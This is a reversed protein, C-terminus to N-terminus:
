DHAPDLTLQARHFDYHQTPYRYLDARTMWDHFYPDWRPPYHMGRSLSATSERDLRRHLAALTRDMKAGMRQHNFYLSGAVSSVYNIVHFPRAAANLLRAFTRGVTRPLRAFVGLLPLLVRVLMYGFLMHFLLQENTWHTGNTPRRLDAASAEALFRHFDTRVRELEAHVAQRDLPSQEDM